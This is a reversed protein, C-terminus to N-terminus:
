KINPFINKLDSQSSDVINSGQKLENRSNSDFKLFPKYYEIMLYIDTVPIRNKEAFEQIFDVSKNKKYKNILEDIQMLSIHGPKIKEPQVYGYKDFVLDYKKQNIFITEENEKRPRKEFAKNQSLNEEGHSFVKVKKLLNLM